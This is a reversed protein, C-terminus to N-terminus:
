FRLLRWGVTLSLDHQAARRAPDVQDLEPGGLRDGERTWYDSVELWLPAGAVDLELGIGGHLMLAREVHDGAQVLVAAAPWSFQYIRLGAGALLYPRLVGDRPLPALMFDAAAGWVSVRATTNLLVSPCALGPYCSFNGPVDSELAYVGHVRVGAHAGPWSLQAVAGFTPTGRMRDLRLYWVEDTPAAAGLANLPILYGAQPTLELEVSSQGHVPLAALLV